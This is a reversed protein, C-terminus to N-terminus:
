SNETPQYAISGTGSGAISVAQSIRRRAASTGRERLEDIQEQLNAVEMDKVKEDFRYAYPKWATNTDSAYRIMPKLIPRGQDLSIKFALVAIVYADDDTITISVEEASNGYSNRLEGEADYTFIFLSLYDSNPYELLSGSLIYQGNALIKKRLREETVNITTSLEPAVAVAYAEEDLGLVRIAGDEIRVQVGEPLATGDGILSSNVLKLLNQHEKEELTEELENLENIQTEVSDSLENIQTQLDPKFPEFPEDERYKLRLFPYLECSAATQLFEGELKVNLKFTVSSTDEPIIIEVAEALATVSYDTFTHDGHYVDVNVYPYWNTSQEYNKWPFDSISDSAGLSFLYTGPKIIGTAGDEIGKGSLVAISAEGSIGAQQSASGNISVTLAGTQKDGSLEFGVSSPINPMELEGDEIPILNLRMIGIDTENIDVQALKQNIESAYYHVKAM